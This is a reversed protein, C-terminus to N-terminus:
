CPWFRPSVYPSGGHAGPARSSCTAAPTQQYARTTRGRVQRSTCRDGLDTAAIVRRHGAAVLLQRPRSTHALPEGAFRALPGASPRLRRRPCCLAPHRVLLPAGRCAGVAAFVHLIVGASCGARQLDPGQPDERPSRLKLCNSDYWRSYICSCSDPRGFILPCHDSAVLHDPMAPDDNANPFPCHHQLTKFIVQAAAAKQDSQCGSAGESAPM